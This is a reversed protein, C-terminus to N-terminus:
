GGHRSLQTQNVLVISQLHHEPCLGDSRQLPKFVDNDLSLGGSVTTVSHVERGSVFIFHCCFFDVPCVSLGKESRKLARCFRFICSSSLPPHYIRGRWAVTFADRTRRREVEPCQFFDSIFLSACAPKGTIRWVACKLCDRKSKCIRASRSKKNGQRHM